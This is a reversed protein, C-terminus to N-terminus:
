IIAIADSKGVTRSKREMMRQRDTKAGGDKAFFFGGACGTLMLVAVDSSNCSTGPIPGEVASLIKCIRLDYPGNLLTSSKSAIRPSPGFRRSFIRLYRTAPFGLELTAEGAAPHEPQALGLPGGAFDGTLVEGCGAVGCVEASGGSYASSSFASGDRRPPSPIFNAVTVIHQIM